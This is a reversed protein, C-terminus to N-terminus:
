TCSESCPATHHAPSPCSPHLPPCFAQWQPDHPHGPSSIPCASGRSITAAAPDLEGKFMQVKCEWRASLKTAWAWQQGWCRMWCRVAPVFGWRHSRSRGMVAPVVGGLEMRSCRHTRGVVGVSVCHLM